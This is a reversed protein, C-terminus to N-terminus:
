DEFKVSTHPPLPNSEQTNEFIQCINALTDRKFRVCQGVSLFIFPLKLDRM